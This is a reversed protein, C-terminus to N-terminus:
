VRLHDQRRHMHHDHRRYLHDHRHYGEKYSGEMQTGNGLDVVRNLCHLADRSPILVEHEYGSM